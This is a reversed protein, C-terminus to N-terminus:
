NQNNQKLAQIKALGDLANRYGPELKLAEEFEHQAQDYRGLKALLVGYNFHAHSYGPNLKAAAAFEALATDEQNAADLEGGLEYHPQWDSPNLKIADRYDQIAESHRGLVAVTKGELFIIQPDQPRQERAHQYAVLASAFEKQSALTNGLEIWGDTMTPRMTVVQRLLSEAEPGQGQMELMRALQFCAFSDQPILDHVRRWERIAGALDGTSKLFLAFNGHVFYDQPWQALTNEFDRASQVVAASNMQPILQNIDGNLEKVREENNLQNSLPPKQMRQIVSEIVLSRNWDSLGLRRECAFQDAWANTGAGQLIAAPLISEIQKAWARALRYNGDFNFHVHEYFTEQGPIKDLIGEALAGAADLFILNKNNLKELEASIIGNIRSDARFPLADDDCALQFHRKAEAYNTLFLLSKGWRFQLEADNPDLAAAQEFNSVAWACDNENQAQAGAGMLQGFHIQDATPLNSATLSAFPACDKLNVAVTNLLIKAGSDLGAKLIDDLNKSFNQYVAKKRSDDAALQNGMFMEMGGWSSAKAGSAPFKRLLDTLLQGLRTKQLALNFRILAVPPAKAGFVTAAGFPGVMENNGMYIIWLDGDNAACERAIPLIVNSNIATIGLNIIEFHAQPYRASLLAELYRSAGYSPDPDGMAASEGLIFIRYTGPPKHVAMRIPGPFRATQAPFFRLSFDDNNVLFTDDGIQFKKFIDTQYGYGFLRLALEMGGLLLLPLVIM